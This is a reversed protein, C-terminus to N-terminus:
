LSERRRRTTVILIVIIGALALGIGVAILSTSIVSGTHALGTGSDGSNSSSAAAPDDAPVVTVTATSVSHSSAGTGTIEYAGSASRPVTVLLIASGNASSTKVVNATSISTAFSALHADAGDQGSVVYSVSESPGFTGASCNLAATQGGQLTSPSVTCGGGTTYDVANAAAPAALTAAVVLLLTALLKRSM